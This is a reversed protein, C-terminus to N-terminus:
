RRLESSYTWGIQFGVGPVNNSKISESIAVPSPPM